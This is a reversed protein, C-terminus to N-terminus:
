QRSEEIVRKVAAVIVEPEDLQVYHRSKAAVAMESRSSLELLATQIKLWKAEGEPDSGEELGARVVVVPLAKLTGAVAQVSRANAELAGIEAWYTDCLDPRNVRALAAAAEEPALKNVERQAPLPHALRLYGFPILAERCVGGAYNLSKQYPLPLPILTEEYTSEVLVLGVVEEPYRAQYYRAYLGGGSHGVLIYPGEIGGRELLTHLDAAMQEVTSLGVIPDSWGNGRRDYACVRTTKAMEPLVRGWFSSFELDGGELIVTPMGEGRCNLHLRYGGVDVLRGPAPYRAAEVAVWFAEYGAGALLVGGVVALLTVVGRMVRSGRGRAEPWPQLEPLNWRRSGWRVWFILLLLGIVLVTGIVTMESDMGATTRVHILNLLTNNLTHALWPAWLNDTKGYLYGYVWGSIATSILLMAAEGIVAGAEAGGLAHKIPWVLHWVAFLAAQLANARLFSFQRMFQPLLVGRFLGEEMASNVFNGLVLFLAFAVGGSIGAKPDIAALELVPRREAALAFALGYGVLYIPLVGTAILLARGLRRRHMGISAPLRGSWALYLLVAILALSKSLIIEGWLEDFRFAFIDLVRFGLALALLLVGPM